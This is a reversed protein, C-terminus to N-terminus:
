LHSADRLPDFLYRYATNLSKIANTLMNCETLLLYVCGTCHCCRQRHAETGFGGVFEDDDDDNSEFEQDDNLDFDSIVDWLNALQIVTVCKLASM